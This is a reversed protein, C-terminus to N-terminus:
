VKIINAYKCIGYILVMSLLTSAMVIPYINLLWFNVLILALGDTMLVLFKEQISKHEIKIAETTLIKIDALSNFYVQSLLVLIAGIGLWFVACYFGLLEIIITIITLKYFNDLRPDQIEKQTNQVQKLDFVAMKAQDICILFFGIAILQSSLNENYIGQWLLGLNAPFFCLFIVIKISM